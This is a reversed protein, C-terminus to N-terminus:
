KGLYAQIVRPHQQVEGPDGAAIVLGHDLVTLHECLGMVLRLNHEILLLTLRHRERIERLFDMLERTEQPNLGAAPEDLLLLRPGTALARAIELRRQLGYPLRGATERAADMLDVEELLALGRRRHEGEERRYRPLRLV